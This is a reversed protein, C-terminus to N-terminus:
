SLQLLTELTLHGRGKFLENGQRSYAGLSGLYDEVHSEALRHYGHVRMNESHALTGAQAYALVCMGHFLLQREKDRLLIHLFGM